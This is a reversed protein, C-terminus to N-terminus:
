VRDAGRQALLILAAVLSAGAALLTPAVFSQTRDALVGALLPGIMQGAGFAASIVANVRRRPEPALRQTATFGLATIGVFTGGLFASASLVGPLSPWLVGASTGAAQILSAVAMARRVGWRRGAVGWLWVSPVAALGVTLWSLTELRPGDQMSRVMAVLFTGLVSYGLGCLGYALTFGVAGRLRTEGGRAPDLDEGDRILVLAPVLLAAAILGAALWQGRWDVGSAHLSPVVVASLAIGTGIGAFHLAAWALGAMRALGGIVVTSGLVLVFAGAFGAVFRLALFGPMGPAAAMGLMSLAVVALSGHLWALRPGPLRPVAVALTGLLYGAFNASAILGAETKALGLAEVMSPLIPTYVFRGLGMAAALACAGGLALSLPSTRASPPLVTDAAQPM